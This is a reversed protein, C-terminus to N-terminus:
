KKPSKKYDINLPDDPGGEYFLKLMEPPLEDFDDAMSVKGEWGGLTRPSTDRVIPVLKAIPKGAKGIVVEKGAQVEALLRSLHTKAEQVNTIKM